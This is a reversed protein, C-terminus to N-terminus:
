GPVRRQPPAIPSQVIPLWNDNAWSSTESRTNQPPALPPKRSSFTPKCDTATSPDCPFALRESATTTYITASGVLGPVVAPDSVTVWAWSIQTRPELGADIRDISARTRISSDVFELDVVQGIKVNFIDKELLQLRVWTEDNNVIEFLHEFAEVFKGESLDSHIVKGAIPSRILHRISQNNDNELADVDVGLVRARIRAIALSNESQQYANELDLLRQM